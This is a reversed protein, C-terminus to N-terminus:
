LAREAEVMVSVVVLEDLLAPRQCRRMGPEEGVDLDALRDFAARHEREDEVIRLRAGFRVLRRHVDVAVDV